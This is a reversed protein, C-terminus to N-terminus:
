KKTGKPKAGRTPGFQVTPNSADEANSPPAPVATRRLMPASVAFTPFISKSKALGDAEPFMEALRNRIYAVRPVEGRLDDIRALLDPELRILLPTM